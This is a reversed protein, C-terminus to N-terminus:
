RSPSKSSGARGIASKVDEDFEAGQTRSYGYADDENSCALDNRMRSVRLRPDVFAGEADRFELIVSSNGLGQVSDPAKWVM